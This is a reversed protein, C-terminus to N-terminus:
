AVSKPPPPLVSHDSLPSRWVVLDALGLLAILLATPGPQGLWAAKGVFQEPLELLQVEIAHPDDGAGVIGPQGLDATLQLSPRPQSRPEELPELRSRPGRFQDLGDKQDLFDDGRRDLVIPSTCDFVLAVSATVASISAAHPGVCFWAALSGVAESIRLLGSWALTLSAWKVRTAWMTLAPTAKSAVPSPTMTM